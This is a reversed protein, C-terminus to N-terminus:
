TFGAPHQTFSDYNERERMHVIKKVCVRVSICHFKCFIFFFVHNTNKQIIRDPNM